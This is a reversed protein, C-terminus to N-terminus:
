IFDKIEHKKVEHWLWLVLIIADLSLLISIGFESKSIINLGLTLKSLPYFPRIFGSLTFDLVLHIFTGLALMNFIIRAKKFVYRLIFFAAPLLLTHSFLRHVEDWSIGAVFYLFWYVIVDLDPILGAIGCILIHYLKLKYKTYHSILDAVILAILVHTVAYPM